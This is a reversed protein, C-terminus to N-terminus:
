RLMRGDAPVQDGEQWAGSPAQHRLAEGVLTLGRTRARTWAPVTTEWRDGVPLPMIASLAITSVSAPSHTPGAITRRGRQLFLRNGAGGWNSDTATARGTRPSYWPGKVADM